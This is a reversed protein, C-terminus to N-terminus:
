GQDGGLLLLRVEKAGFSKETDVLGWDMEEEDDDGDGFGDDEKISM